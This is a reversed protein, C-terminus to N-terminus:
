YLASRNEEALLVAPHHFFMHPGHHFSSPLCKRVILEQLPASSHPVVQVGSHCAAILQTGCGGGPQMITLAHCLSPLQHTGLLELQYRHLHCPWCHGMPAVCVQRTTLRSCCYAALTTRLDILDRHQTKRAMRHPSVFIKDCLLCAWQLCGTKHTKPTRGTM